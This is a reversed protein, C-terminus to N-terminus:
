RDRCVARCRCSRDCWRVRTAYPTGFIEILRNNLDREQAEVNRDTKADEDQNRRLLQNFQNAQDFVDVANRWAQRPGHRCDRFSRCRGLKGAPHSSCSLGVTTKPSLERSIELRRLINTAEVLVLHPAVLEETALLQEAWVGEAGMDTTASVLVTADVVTSM